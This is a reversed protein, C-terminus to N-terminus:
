FRRGEEILQRITLDPGLTQGRRLERIRDVVWAPDPRSAEGARVLEAVPVGNRTITVQEGRSLSEILSALQQDAKEIAITM